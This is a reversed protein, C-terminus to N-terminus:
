FLEIEGSEMSEQNVAKQGGKATWHGKAHSIRERMARLVDDLEIESDPGATVSRLLLNEEAKMESIHGVHNQAAALAQTTIDEFQLSRVAVGVVNTINTSLNAVEGIRTSMVENMNGIEELLNDVRERGKITENMDRSAMEGVTDRVKSVSNKTINVNNRIEDNLNSSRISLKRVEDAVVAFGRGAEGARAAEIAANLALLNTQDAISQVDGLLRFIGDLNEAMDDIYHVTTVSNKSGEIIAQSFHDLASRTDEAFKRIDISDSDGQSTTEITMLVVEELQQMLNNLEHFSGSLEAIAEKLLRQVRDVEIRVHEIEDSSLEQIMATLEDIAASAAGSLSKAEDQEQEEAGKHASLVSYGIWGLLVVEVLWRLPHIGGVIEVVLLIIALLFLPGIQKLSRKAM